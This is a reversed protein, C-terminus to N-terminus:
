GEKMWFILLAIFSAGAAIALKIDASVDSMYFSAISLPIWAVCAALGLGELFREKLTIKDRM